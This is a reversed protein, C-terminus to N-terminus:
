GPWIFLLQRLLDKLEEQGLGSPLYIGPRLIGLIFPTNVADCLWITEGAEKLPIAQRLRIRLRLFYLLLFLMVVAWLIGAFYQWFWGDQPM